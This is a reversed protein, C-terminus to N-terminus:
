NVIPRYTTKITWPLRAWGLKDLVEIIFLEFTTLTKNFNFIIEPDIIKSPLMPGFILSVELHVWPM